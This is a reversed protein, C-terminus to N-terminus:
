LSSIKRTSKVLESTCIVPHDSKHLCGMHRRVNTKLTSSYPCHPCRFPKEGTHTMHHRQLESSSRCKRGCIQCWKLDGCNIVPGIQGVSCTSGLNLQAVLGSAAQGLTFSCDAMQMPGAEGQLSSYPRLRLLDVVCIWTWYWSDLFGPVVQMSCFPLSM